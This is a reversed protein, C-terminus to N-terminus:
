EEEENKATGLQRVETTPELHKVLEQGSSSDVLLLMREQAKKNLRL